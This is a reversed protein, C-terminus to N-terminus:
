CQGAPLEVRCSGAANKNKMARRCKQGLGKISRSRECGAADLKQFFSQRGKLAPECSRLVNHPLNISRLVHEATARKVLLGNVLMRDLIKVVAKKEGVHLWFLPVLDKRRFMCIHSDPLKHSLFTRIAELIPLDRQAVQLTVTCNALIKICGEADFFGSIYGWSSVANKWLTQNRSKWRRWNQLMRSEKRGAILGLAICDWTTGKECFSVTSTCNQLRMALQSPWFSAMSNIATQNRHWLPLSFHGRWIQILFCHSNLQKWNAPWGQTSLGIPENGSGCMWWWRFIRGFLCCRSQCNISKKWGPCRGQHAIKTVRRGCECTDTYAATPGEPAADPEQQYSGTEEFLMPALDISGLDVCLLHQTVDRIVCVKSLLGPM